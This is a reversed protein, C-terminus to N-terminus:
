FIRTLIPLFGAIQLHEVMEVMPFIALFFVGDLVTRRLAKPSFAVEDSDSYRSPKPWFMPTQRAYAEYRGGFLTELHEAEKSATVHLVVYATLGLAIAVIISGHILGIGVAGLTSFFYLPNRTMSYPGSTVLDRNKKSGVYLISWARGAVCALVFGLGLLEIAEHMDGVVLPHTLLLTAAFALSGVQLVRIRAKQNVPEARM